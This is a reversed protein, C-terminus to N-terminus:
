PKRLYGNKWNVVLLIAKEAYFQAIGDACASCARLKAVEGRIITINAKESRQKPKIGKGPDNSGYCCIPDFWILM